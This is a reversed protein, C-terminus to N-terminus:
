CQALVPIWSIPWQSQAHAEGDWPPWAFLTIEKSVIMSKRGLLVLTLAGSQVGIERALPAADELALIFGAM